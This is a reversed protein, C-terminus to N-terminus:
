FKRFYKGTITLAKFTQRHIPQTGQTYVLGATYEETVLQLGGLRINIVISRAPGPQLIKNPRSSTRVEILNHIEIQYVSLAQPRSHGLESAPNILILLATLREGRRM